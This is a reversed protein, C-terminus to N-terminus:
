RMKRASGKIITQPVETSFRQDPPNLLVSKVEAATTNDLASVIYDFKTQDQTVSRSRLQAVRVFWIEPDEPWFDPLKIAVAQASGEPPQFCPPSTSASRNTIAETLRTLAESDSLAM